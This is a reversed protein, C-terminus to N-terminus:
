GERRLIELPPHSAVGRSTLLGVLVTLLTVCAVTLVLPWASVAYDTQFAFRALAWSAAVALIVALLSALFGLALYEAVL